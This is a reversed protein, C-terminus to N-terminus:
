RYVIPLTFSEGQQMFEKDMNEKPEDPQRREGNKDSYKEKKLGKDKEDKGKQYSVKYGEPFGEISQKPSLPNKFSPDHAPDKSVDNPAGRNINQNDNPHSQVERQTQSTINPQSQHYDNPTAHSPMNQTETLGGTHSYFGRDTSNAYPTASKQYYGYQDPTQHFHDASRVNGGETEEREGITHYPRGEYINRFHHHHQHPESYHQNFGQHLHEQSQGHGQYDHYYHGHGQNMQQHAASNEDYPREATHQNSDVPWHHHGQFQNTQGQFQHGQGEGSAGPVGFFQENGQIALAEHRLKAFDEISKRLINEREPTSLHGIEHHGQGAKPRESTVAKLDSQADKQGKRQSKKKKNQNANGLHNEMPYVSGHFDPKKNTPEETNSHYDSDLQDRSGHFSPNSYIDSEPEHSTRLNPLSEVSARVLDLQPRTFEQTRSLPNNFDFRPMQINYIPHSEPGQFYGGGWDHDTDPVENIRFYLFINQM